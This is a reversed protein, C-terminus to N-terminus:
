RGQGRLNEIMLLTASVVENEKFETGGPEKIMLSIAIPRGRKM